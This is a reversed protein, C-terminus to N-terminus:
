RGVTRLDLFSGEIKYPNPDHSLSSMGERGVINM